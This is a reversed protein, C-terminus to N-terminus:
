FRLTSNGEFLRVSKRTKRIPTHVITHVTDSDGTRCKHLAVLAGGFLLAGGVARPLESGQKSQERRKRRPKRRSKSQQKRRSKSQKHQKRQRYQKHQQSQGSQKHPNNQKHQKRQSHHKHQQSQGSQKRPNSQKRQEQKHSKSQEQKSQKCAQEQSSRGKGRRCGGARAKDYAHNIFQFDVTSQESSNPNRDPHFQRVEQRFTSNVAECDGKAKLIRVAAERASQTPKLGQVECLLALLAVGIAKLIHPEAPEFTDLTQKTNNLVSM